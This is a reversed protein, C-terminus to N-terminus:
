VFSKFVCVEVCLVTVCLEKVWGTKCWTREREQRGRRMKVDSEANNSSISM